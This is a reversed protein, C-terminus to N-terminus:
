TLLNLYDKIKDTLKLNKISSSNSLNLDEDLSNILNMLYNTKIAYNVNETKDLKRNITSSTIGILNGSM